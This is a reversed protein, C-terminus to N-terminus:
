GVGRRIMARSRRSEVQERVFTYGYTGTLTHARRYPKRNGTPGVLLSLIPQIVGRSGCAQPSLRQVRAEDNITSVM